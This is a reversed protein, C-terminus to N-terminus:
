LCWGCSAVFGRREIRMSTRLQNWPRAVFKAAALNTAKKKFGRTIGLFDREPIM